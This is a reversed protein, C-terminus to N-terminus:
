EYMPYKDTISAVAARIEDQKTDFETATKWILQGILKMDDERLGRSTAAPVGVRIGSTVFPSQPDDPITNKNVTINVEDLRKEMASLEEPTPPRNDFGMVCGRLASHGILMGYNAINRHANAQRIYEDLTNVTIDMPPYQLNSLYYETIAARTEPTSPLPSIGCNGTLEFTVGQNTKSEPDFPSLPALDSHTHIDIFGPSVVKGAADIVEKAEAGCQATIEAIRGNQICVDAQYAPARTGDVVMGNRIILDYM